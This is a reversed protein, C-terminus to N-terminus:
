FIQLLFSNFQTFIIFIAFQVCSILITVLIALLIRPLNIAYSLPIDSAQASICLELMLAPTVALVAPLVGLLFGQAPFVSLLAAAAALGSLLGFVAASAMAIAMRAARTGPVNAAIFFPLARLFAAAIYRVGGEPMFVYEEGMGRTAAAGLTLGVAYITYFLLAREEIRENFGYRM